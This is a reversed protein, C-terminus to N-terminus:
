LAIGWRELVENAAEIPGKGEIEASDALIMAGQDDVITRGRVAVPLLLTMERLSSVFGEAGDREIQGRVGEMDKKLFAESPERAMLLSANCVGNDIVFRLRLDEEGSQGGHESCSGDRLVRRCEPCRQIIGSDPRVAVISGSTRVGRRSGGSVLETLPVDIWHNEPDIKQWPEGELISVQDVEDIVLDPSGQWFQVRGKEIRIYDGSKPDFECWATLRCRGTPDLVDGSRVVRTAGDQTEFTRQSWNEVQLTISVDRMGNRLDAIKSKIAESLEETSPFASDIYPEIVTGDSINIEPTDRFKRISAGVIKILSGVEHDFPVWSLFGITGSSDGIRGRVVEIEGSGDRRVIVDPDAALVRGVISAYGESEWARSISLPEDGIKPVVPGGERLVTIRSTRNINLSKKENWENVSAGEIRVISGPTLKEGKGGWDKFDWRERLNGSEWPNDEIWGFAIQREEGRVTQIRPTYSVVSVEITVNRDDAMLEAFKDVKKDPRSSVNTKKQMEKGTATQFKMLVSRLADEPPILFENEYRAFEKGIEALDAEPCEEKVVAIQAEYSKFDTM